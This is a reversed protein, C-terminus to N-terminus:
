SFSSKSRYIDNLTVIKKPFVNKPSAQRRWVARRAALAALVSSLTAPGALKAGATSASRHRSYKSTRQAYCFFM